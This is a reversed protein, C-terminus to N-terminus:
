VHSEESNDNVFVDCATHGNAHTNMHTNEELTEEANRPSASSFPLSGQKKCWQWYFYVLSFICGCMLLMLLMISLTGVEVHQKKETNSEAASATSTTEPKTAFTTPKNQKTEAPQTTSQTSSPSNTTSAIAAYEYITQPQNPEAPSLPPLPTGEQDEAVVNRVAKVVMCNFYSSSVVEIVPPLSMKAQSSNVLCSTEFCGLLIDEITSNPTCFKKLTNIVAATDNQSSNTRELVVMNGKPVLTKLLREPQYLDGCGGASQNILVLSLIFFLLFRSNM